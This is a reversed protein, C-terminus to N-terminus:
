GAAGRGDPGGERDEALPDAPPRTGPGASTELSYRPSASRGVIRRIVTRDEVVDVAAQQPPGEFLQEARRRSARRRDPRRESGDIVAV